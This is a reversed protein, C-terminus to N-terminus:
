DEPSSSVIVITTTTNAHLPGRPGQAAAIAAATATATIPFTSPLQIQTFLATRLAIVDAAIPALPISL